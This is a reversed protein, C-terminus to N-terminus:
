GRVGLVVGVVAAAVAVVSAVTRWTVEVVRHAAGRGEVVGADHGRQELEREELATVRGNTKDVKGELRELRRTTDSRWQDAAAQAVRVEAVLDAVRETREALRRVEGLIEASVGGTDDVM